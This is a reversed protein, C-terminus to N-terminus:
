GVCVHNSRNGDGYGRCPSPRCLGWWWSCCECSDFWTISKNCFSTPPTPSLKVKTKESTTQKGLQILGIQSMVTRVWHKGSKHM